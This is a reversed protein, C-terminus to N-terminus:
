LKVWAGGVRAYIGAGTGGPSWSTGDAKVVMGEYIRKPEEYLTQLIVAQVTAMEKAIQQLETRLFQPVDKPDSPINGVQYM